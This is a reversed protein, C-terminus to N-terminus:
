GLGGSRGPEPAASRRQENPASTILVPAAVGQTSAGLLLDLVRRRAEQVTETMIERALQQDGKLIAEVLPAHRNQGPRASGPLDQCLNYVREVEELLKALYRALRPNGSAEAVTLHFARDVVFGDLLRRAETRQALRRLQTLQEATAHQTALAAAAPELVLRLGMIQQVDQISVPAIIYGRRPM